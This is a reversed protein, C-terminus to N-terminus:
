DIWVITCPKLFIETGTDWNTCSFNATKNFQSKRNYHNKQYFNRAKPKRYFLSDKKLTRLEVPILGFPNEPEQYKM